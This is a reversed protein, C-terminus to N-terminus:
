WSWSSVTQPKLRCKDTSGKKQKKKQKKKKKKYLILRKYLWSTIDYIQVDNHNNNQNNDKWYVIDDDELYKKKHIKIKNLPYKM